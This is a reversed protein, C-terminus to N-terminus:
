IEAVLFDWDGDSGEAMLYAIAESEGSVGYETEAYDKYKVVVVEGGRSRVYAGDVEALTKIIDMPYEGEVELLGGPIVFDIVQYDLSLGCDAVLEEIIAMRTSSEWVRTIKTAYPYYLLCAKNRGWIQWTTARPQESMSLDDWLYSDFLVGGIYIDIRPEYFNVDSRVFMKRILYLAEDVIDIRCTNPVSDIDAVLEVKKVSNTIDEGDLYVTLEPPVYVMSGEGITYILSLDEYGVAEGIRSVIDIDDDYQM